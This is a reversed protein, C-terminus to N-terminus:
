SSVSSKSARISAPTALQGLVRHIMSIGELAYYECQLPILPRRRRCLRQPHASWVIASLRDPHLDFRNPRSCRAPASQAVRHLHHEGRALEIDAGCLDVESPIIHLRDYATKQIKDLLAGEGLL